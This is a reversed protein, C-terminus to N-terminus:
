LHSPYRVDYNGNKILRAFVRSGAVNCREGINVFNTDPGVRMPELGALMM